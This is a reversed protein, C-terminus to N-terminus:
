DVGAGTNSAPPYGFIICAIFIVGFLMILGYFAWVYYKSWHPKGIADRIETTMGFLKVGHVEKNKYAEDIQYGRKVAGLLMKYYYFYDLIFYEM